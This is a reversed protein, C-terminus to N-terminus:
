FGLVAELSMSEGPYPRSMDALKDDRIPRVARESGMTEARVRSFLLYETDTARPSM